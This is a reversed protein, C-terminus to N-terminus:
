RSCTVREQLFSGALSEVDLDAGGRVEIRMRAGSAAELEVVYEASGGLQVPPLEVFRSPAAADTGGAAAARMRLRLTQANLRLAHATRSLGHTHALQVAEAWLRDPIRRSTRRGRWAEFQDRGRALGRPLVKSRTARKM